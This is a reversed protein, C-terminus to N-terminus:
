AARSGVTGRLASVRGRPTRLLTGTRTWHGKRAWFHGWGAEKKRRPWHKQGSGTPCPPQHHPCSQLKPYCWLKPVGSVPRWGSSTLLAPHLSANVCHKTCAAPAGEPTVPARGSGWAPVPAELGGSHSCFRGPGPQLYLFDGMQKRSKEQTDSPGGPWSPKMFGLFPRAQPM